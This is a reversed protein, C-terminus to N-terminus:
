LLDPELANAMTAAFPSDDGSLLKERSFLRSAGSANTKRVSAMMDEEEEAGRKKMEVVDLASLLSTSSTM